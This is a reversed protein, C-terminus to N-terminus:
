VDLVEVAGNGVRLDDLEAAADDIEDGHQARERGDLERAVDRELVLLVRLVRQWADGFRDAVQAARERRERSTTVQTFAILRQSPRPRHTRAVPPHHAPLGRPGPVRHDSYSPVANSVSGKPGRMRVTALRVADHYSPGHEPLCRAMARLLFFTM